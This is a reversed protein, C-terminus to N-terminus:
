KKSKELLKELVKITASFDKDAFEKIGKEYIKVVNNAGPLDIGLKKSFEVILNIDKHMNRFSFKPSFEEKKITEGKSDLYFNQGGGAKVGKLVMDFNLGAAKALILMENVGNQIEGVLMNHCMKMALGKGNEGFYIIEEPKGMCELIPRIKKYTEEDGGVYIGLNGAIAAAKSKVVPVDMMVSGSNKVKKALEKSVDPSITSMDVYITGKKIHPLIGDVVEKVNENTPVMSIILNCNEALEKINKCPSGGLKTLKEVQARNVDYLWVKSGSKKIINECMSEGMTGLGIFGIRFSDM